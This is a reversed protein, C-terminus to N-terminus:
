RTGGEKALAHATSHIAGKAKTGDAFDLDHSLRVQMAPRMDKVTLRAAKGGDELGVELIELRDIGQKGKERISWRKSGYDGSWRYDWQELTWRKPDTATKALPQGFRVRVGDSLAEFGTATRIPKGTWRMRQLCGDKQAATQWGNLGCAYLHGDRPNFRGRCVGSLFRVGLDVAAAQEMDGVKQPLLAYLRCRGYSFHLMQGKPWGWKADRTWVQGGASNDVDKPLWVLPPDYTKPAVTRHHARMDGYFGGKRYADVRTVPMWNGEQDAGTLTGTPSVGLGIPHRFGTAYVELKKGDKSVKLLTGGEPLHTDGTKFFCFNGEADTELCTDYSHEGAGTHWLNCLNEYFHAEDKGHLRTLQGRELVVIKGDVVKLGLPQYLGTAYRKWRVKELKDDFAVLWVDGHCTCLAIRGDPLFDLGTCFFLAKHPNDYPITLTDLVYPAAADKGMEGKTVIEKWRAPGPKLLHRISATGLKKFADRVSDWPAHDEAGFGAPNKPRTPVTSGVAIVRVEDSPPIDLILDRESFRSKCGKSPDNFALYDYRGSEVHGMNLSLRKKTPAIELLRLAVHCEDEMQMWPMELVEVGQVSYSFVVKDGHVYHGNYRGWEAPLPATASKADLEGKPGAWGPRPASRRVLRGAPTPTNLLGFRRDSHHLFGGSWGAAMRLMARDFVMGNDGKPGVKVATGKYVTVKGKGHPYQMTGNFTPGTDMKRLRADVWDPDTMREWPEGAAQPPPTWAPDALIRDDGDFRWGAVTDADVE